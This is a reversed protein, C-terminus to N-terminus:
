LRSEHHFRICFSHRTRIAALVATNFVNDSILRCSRSILTIASCISLLLIYVLRTLSNLIIKLINNCKCLVIKETKIKKARSIMPIHNRVRNYIMTTKGDAAISIGLYLHGHFPRRIIM